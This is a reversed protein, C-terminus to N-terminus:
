TGRRRSGPRQVPETTVRAVGDRRPEDADRAPVARSAAEAFERVAPASRSALTYTAPDPAASTLVVAPECGESGRVEVREIAAVPIKRRVAGAELLLEGSRLRAVSRRRGHLVLPSTANDTM